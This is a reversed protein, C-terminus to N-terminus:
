KAPLNEAFVLQEKRSKSLRKIASERKCALSRSVCTEFYVLSVPRRSRTYKAGTKNDSNHESLRKHLSKAVGTYLSNDACRVMYVYWTHGGRLEKPLKISPTNMATLEPTSTDNLQSANINLVARHRWIEINHPSLLQRRWAESELTNVSLLTATPCFISM